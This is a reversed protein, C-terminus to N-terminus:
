RKVSYDLDLDKAAKVTMIQMMDNISSTRSMDGGGSGFVTTPVPAAKAAEAWQTNIREWADLKQQLGNDSAIARERAYGNADATVRTAKADLEAKEFLVQATQKDLESQEKRKSAEILALQKNTEAQTTAEIQVKLTEQRKEEVEREGKAIALQKAEQEKMRNQQALVLQATSEQVAKMREQFSENPIVNTIRAEVLEVGFVRYQQPKTRPQGNADVQREIKFTTRTNDGFQGQEVGRQAIATEAPPGEPVDAKVEIRRVIFLGDRLQAEFDSSFESRGGAYFQDATMLSATSQLTDKLAPILATQMFNEPERYERALELFKDGVPMRFRATAEVAADVNGLFVVRFANIEAGDSRADLEKASLKAEVTLAKKWESSRGFWKTALGVENVVKEQGFITRVHYQYGAEAYFLIKTFVLWYVFWIVILAILTIQLGKIWKPSLREKLFDAGPIRDALSM